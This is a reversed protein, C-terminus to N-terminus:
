DFVLPSVRFVVWEIRALIEERTRLALDFFHSMHYRGLTIQHAVSGV